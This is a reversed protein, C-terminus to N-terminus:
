ANATLRLSVFGTSIGYTPAGSALRDVIARADAMRDNAGDTLGVTAGGRGVAIVDAVTVGPGDLQVTM